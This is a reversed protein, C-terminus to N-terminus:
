EDVDAAAPRPRVVVTVEPASGQDFAESRDTDRPDPVPSPAGAAAALQLPLPEPSWTIVGTESDIAHANGWWAGLVTESDANAVYGIFVPPVADPTPEAPASEVTPPESESAARQPPIMGEIVGDGGPDDDFLSLAPLPAPVNKTATARLVESALTPADDVDALSRALLFPILLRGGVRVLSYAANPVPVIEVAPLPAGPAEAFQYIMQEYKSTWTSGYAYRKVQGSARQTRTGVQQADTLAQAVRRAVEGAHGGFQAVAWGTVTTDILM